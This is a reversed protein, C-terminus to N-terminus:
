GRLHAQIGLLACAGMMLSLAGTGWLLSYSVAEADERRLASASLFVYVALVGFAIALIDALDTQGMTSVGLYLLFGLGSIGAGWNVQKTTHLLGRNENM